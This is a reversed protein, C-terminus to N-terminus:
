ETTQLKTHSNILQFYREGAVQWDFQKTVKDRGRAAIQQRLERNRLLLCIKETLAATDGPTVFIGTDTDIVDRIAELSSAIVACGCGMAEIIVLGLGEQDGASDIVSPMVAIGASSYLDPLQHHPVSGLFQVHDDLGLQKAKQELTSRLPGDGVILLEAGPVTKIVRAMADLLCGAGKKEVLRGVFILRQDNRKVEPVPKFENIMDVGMPMVSIKGGNVGMNMAVKKMASSVVCFHACRNITWQKFRTFSFNNLAYLDGGHSTCILAPAKRGLFLNIFACVCGQPILWHAHILHYRTTKLRHYLALAQASVLFPVLLYNLPNKKLNALIGGSYALTQLGSIFYPYRYVNIGDLLEHKKAGPAHPAIVDIQLGKGHLYRCLDFVFSPETDNNWRPFTSTIVLIRPLENTM